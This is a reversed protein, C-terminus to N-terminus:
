LTVKIEYLITYVPYNSSTKNELTYLVFNIQFFHFFQKIIAKKRVFPNTSHQSHQSSVKKVLRSQKGCIM